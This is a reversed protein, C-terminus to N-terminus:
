EQLVTRPSVRAAVMGPMAIVALAIAWFLAITLLVQMSGVSFPAPFGTSLQLFRGALAHGGIGFLAGVFAGVGITVGSEILVARWLQSTDYGQVKLSALRARRQWIAASLASAVSLATAVLLLNSIDRLTHLGQRASNASQADRQAASMAQLGSGAGLAATVARRGAAEGVGPRFSVEIAAADSTGWLRRYDPAGITITGAPWGSNTTLAAVRLRATASPAPLTFTSGVRLHREGAFDSSVAAWGGSRILRSAREYDGHLLQSSELMAGDQIPRGRVWMRRRGLDLLGGRYVRVSAVGPVRSIAAAPGAPDFSNTNFVDRGATVWVQATAFYQATARDIGRLLDQRAGGIAIGGYVALAVIAALAVSRTTVARMETLAVILASSRVRDLGRGLASSVGWLAVPVLCSCGVALAVGAGITVAPVLVATAVAVLSIAAGILALALMTRPSIAESHVVSQRRVANASRRGRLDLLPSLSALASALVGCGVAVAISFGTITEQTGIPFAATLFGPVHQFFAESLEWGLVLGALSATAGLVLAQLALLLFVQTADYGQMRLEAVFRRREPVTLLVANLALLFGIMVAIATFLSTSQRSPRTAVRLLALEESAPRVVMGRASALRELQRGARDTAGPRPLILVETVAGPRGALLQAERLVAVAVPSAALGPLASSLLLRVRANHLHGRSAVLVASGRHAELPAAVGSPLALGGKLLTAGEGLQQTWTGGLAELSPSLGILQVAQQGGPGSLTVNERLVPSAVQVAELEGAEQVVRESVGRSSRAVLEYRANGALAHVLGSASSTLSANALLVGFVLAVGIAVGGGALLEALPHARVRRRYLYLLMDLRMGAIQPNM